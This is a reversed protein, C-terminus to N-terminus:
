DGKKFKRISIPPFSTPFSSHLLPPLQTSSSCISQTYVVQAFDFSSTYMEGRGIKTCIVYFWCSSQEIM